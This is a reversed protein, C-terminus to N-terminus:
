SGTDKRKKDAAKCHGGGSQAQEDERKQRQSMVEELTESESKSLGRNLLAIM